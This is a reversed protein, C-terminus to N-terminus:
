HLMKELDQIKSTNAAYVQMVPSWYADVIPIKDILGKKVLPELLRTIDTPDLKVESPTSTSRTYITNVSYHANEISKKGLDLISKVIRKTREIDEAEKIRRRM